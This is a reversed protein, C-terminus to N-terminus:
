GTEVPDPEKEGDVAARLWLTVRRLASEVGKSTLGSAAMGAIEEATFGQRYYLWFFARDREGIVEPASRLKRDLQEMLASKRMEAASQMTAAPLQAGDEVLPMTVVKGGRKASHQRRFYDNAM